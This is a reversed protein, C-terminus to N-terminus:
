VTMKLDKNTDMRVFSVSSQSHPYLHHLPVRCIKEHLKKIFNGVHAIESWFANHTDKLDLLHGEKMFVNQLASQTFIKLGANKLDM